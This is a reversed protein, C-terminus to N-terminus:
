RTERTIRDVTEKRPCDLMHGHQAGCGACTEKDRCECCLPDKGHEKYTFCETTRGMPALMPANCSMCETRELGTLAGTSDARPM